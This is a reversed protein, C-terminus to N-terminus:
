HPEIAAISSRAAPASRVVSLSGDAELVVAEVGDLDLV